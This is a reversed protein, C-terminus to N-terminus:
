LKKLLSQAPDIAKYVVRDVVASNYEIPFIAIKRKKSQWHSYNRNNGHQVEKTADQVLYTM